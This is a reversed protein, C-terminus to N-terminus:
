VTKDFTKQYKKTNKHNPNSYAGYIGNRGVVINKQYQRLAEVMSETWRRPKGRQDSLRLPEPLYPKDILGEKMQLQQLDYWHILTWNSIHLEECLESVSYVKENVM